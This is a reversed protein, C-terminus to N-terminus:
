AGNRWWDGGNDEDGIYQLLPKTRYIACVFCDLFASIFNIELFLSYLGLNIIHYLLFTNIKFSKCMM